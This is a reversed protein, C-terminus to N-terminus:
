LTLIEGKHPIEKIKCAKHLTDFFLLILSKSHATNNQFRRHMKM